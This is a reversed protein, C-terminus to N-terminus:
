TLATTQIREKSLKSVLLVLRDIEFGAITVVVILTIALGRLRLWRLMQRGAKLLSGDGRSDRSRRNDILLRVVTRSDHAGDVGRRGVRM